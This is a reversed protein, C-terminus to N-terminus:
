HDAKRPQPLDWQAHLHRLEDLNLCFVFPLGSKGIRDRYRAGNYRSGILVWYIMRWTVSDKYGELNGARRREFLTRHFYRLLRLWRNDDLVIAGTARALREPLLASYNGDMVWNDREMAARQLSLFEEAPRPQWDTNPLHHLQDLHVITLGAKEGIAEALTSKGSNSPGMIVIRRGLSELPPIEIM